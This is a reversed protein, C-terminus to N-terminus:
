KSKCCLLAFCITHCIDSVYQINLVIKTPKKKCLPKRQIYIKCMHGRKFFKLSWPYKLKYMSCCCSSTNWCSTSGICAQHGQGQSRFFIPRTRSAASCLTWIGWHSADPLYLFTYLFVYVFWIFMSTFFIKSFLKFHKDFIFFLSLLIFSERVIVNFNLFFLFLM